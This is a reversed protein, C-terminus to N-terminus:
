SNRSQKWTDALGGVVIGVMFVYFITKTPTEFYKSIVVITNWCLFLYIGTFASFYIIDLFMYQFKNYIKQPLARFTFGFILGILLSAIFSIQYIM